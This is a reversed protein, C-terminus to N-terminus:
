ERYYKESEREEEGRQEKYYMYIDSERKEEGSENTGKVRKIKTADEEPDGDREVM